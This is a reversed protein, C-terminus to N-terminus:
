KRRSRLENLLLNISEYLGTNADTSLLMWKLKSENLYDSAYECTCSSTEVSEAFPCFSSAKAACLTWPETLYQAPVYSLYKDSHDSASDVGTDIMGCRECSASCVRLSDFTKIKSCCISGDDAVTCQSPVYVAMNHKHKSQVNHVAFVVAPFFLVTLLLLVIDHNIDLGYVINYYHQQIQTEVHDVIPNKPLTPRAPRLQKGCVWQIVTAIFILMSAIVVVTQTTANLGICNLCPACVTM